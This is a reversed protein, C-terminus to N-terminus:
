TERQVNASFVDVDLSNFSGFDEQGDYDQSFSILLLADSYVEKKLRDGIGDEIQNLSQRDRDRTEPREGGRQREKVDCM